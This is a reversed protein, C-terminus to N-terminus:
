KLSNAFITSYISLEMVNGRKRRKTIYISGM